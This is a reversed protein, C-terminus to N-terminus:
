AKDLAEKEDVAVVVTEGETYAPLNEAEYAPLSDEKDDTQVVEYATNGTRRYKMWLFVVAQGVLMGIASATIGVAVGVMVPLIVFTFIHKAFGMVTRLVGRHHTQGDHHQPHLQGPRFVNHTPLKTTKGDGSPKPAAPHGSLRHFSHMCFCKVKHAAHGAKHIAKHAAQAAKARAHAMAAALKVM